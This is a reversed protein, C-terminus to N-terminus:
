TRDAGADQNHGNRAMPLAEPRLPERAAALNVVNEEHRIVFAQEPGGLM